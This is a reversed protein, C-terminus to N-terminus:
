RLPWRRVAMGCGRVFKEVLSEPSSCFVSYVKWSMRRVVAPVYGEFMMRTRVCVIVSVDPIETHKPVTSSPPIESATVSQLSSSFCFCINSAHCISAAATSRETRMRGPTFFSM